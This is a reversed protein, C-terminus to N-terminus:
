MMDHISHTTGEIDGAFTDVKDPKKQPNYFEQIGYIEQLEYSIGDVWIKQKVTRANYEDDEDRM